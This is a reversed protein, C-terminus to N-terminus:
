AMTSLVDQVVVDLYVGLSIIRASWTTDGEEM